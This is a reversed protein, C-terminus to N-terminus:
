RIGTVAFLVPATETAMSSVTIAKIRMDPSPNNWVIDWNRLYSGDKAQGQWAIMPDGGIKLDNYAYINKGYVLPFGAETGDEYQVSINGVRTDEETSISCNMLFHLESVVQPKINMTLSQPFNGEPNLIGSLLVAAEGNKNKQVMFRTRDLVIEGTPFSSFDIKSGLGLWGSRKEDDNLKRNYVSSLDLCFGKEEDLSPKEEQWLRKFVHAPNFPLENV